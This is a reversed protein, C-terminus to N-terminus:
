VLMSVLFSNARSITCRKAFGIRRPNELNYLSVRASFLTGRSINLSNWVAMLRYAIVASDAGVSAGPACASARRM